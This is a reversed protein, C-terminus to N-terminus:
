AGPAARLRRALVVGLHLANSTTWYLVMGAPLTYLLVFFAAALGYLRRRQGQRLEPAPGPGEQLRSALVALATMVVPLLNFYGGFFPAPAAFPLLRDPLSLDAIWLFRAGALGFQEGLMAFAAVFVPIQVLFGALSKLGYWRGVGHKAHVALTRRQAEGGHHDRRIAALEPALLSRTRNVQDQWRGAIFTLPSMLLKVSASLLIIALGWSGVLSQWLELIAQLGFSLWRLPEWLAAYLLRTLLPDAAALASREVPGAYLRLEVPGAGEIARGFAVVPQDPAPREAVVSLPEGGSVLLTWFRGRLGTWSAPPLPRGGAAGSASADDIREVGDAGVIVATARSYMAGLGPLAPPVLDDGGALRLMAGAPVQMSAELVSGDRRLRYRHILRIGDWPLASSVIVTTFGEGQRVEHTYPLADLAATAAPNGPIVWELRNGGPGARLLDQRPSAPDTCPGVCTLWRGPLGGALNLVLAQREGAVQVAQGHAPGAMLAAAMLVGLLLLM